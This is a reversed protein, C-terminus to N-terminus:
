SGAPVSAAQPKADQTKDGTGANRASDLWVDATMGPRLEDLGEDLTVKIRFVQKSREEPTQVNGPTFEAQRAIFTLTGVFKRDPYSDVSVDFKQGLQLDLHNEPVYARVWLNVPDLMSLVPANPSVVDGPHIQAAEIVGDMPAKITLEELQSEIAQLSAEAAQVDAEARAVDETRYGKVFLQLSQDAAEYAAKANAIDEKRSGAQLEKLKQRMTEVVALAAKYQQESTDLEDQTAAERQRLTSKQQFVIRYLEAQAEAQQVQAEAAAIEEERPGAILKDLNAKARDREAQAQAIEEERYGAKLRAYEARRAALEAEAMARRAQLDFPELKLLVEGAKVAQGEDVFVESVRGGVRSGLRIEDAEIFGSVKLQGNQHQSLLLLVLLVLGAIVIAMVRKAM